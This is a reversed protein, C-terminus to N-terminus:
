NKNSVYHYFCEEKINVSSEDAKISVANWLGGDVGNLLSVVISNLYDNGSTTATLYDIIKRFNFRVYVAVTASVACIVGNSALLNAEIGHAILIDPLNKGLSVFLIHSADNRALLIYSAYVAVLNEVLHKNLHVVDRVKGAFERRQFVNQRFTDALESREKWLLYLLLHHSTKVTALATAPVRCEHVDSAFAVLNDGHKINVTLEQVGEVLCVLKPKLFDALQEALEGEKPFCLM